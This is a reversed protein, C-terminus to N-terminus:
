RLFTLAISIHTDRNLMTIITDFNSLKIFLLKDKTKTIKDKITLRSYSEKPLSSFQTFNIYNIIKIFYVVISVRLVSIM